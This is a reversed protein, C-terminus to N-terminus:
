RTSTSKLPNLVLFDSYVRRSSIKEVSYCGLWQIQYDQLQIQWSKGEVVLFVLLLTSNNKWGYFIVLIATNVLHPHELGQVATWGLRPRRRLWHVSPFDSWPVLGWFYWLSAM